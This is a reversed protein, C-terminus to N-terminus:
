NIKILHIHNKGYRVVYAGAPLDGINLIGNEVKRKLIMRGDISYIRCLGFFTPDIKLINANLFLHYDEQFIEKKVVEKIGSGSYVFKVVLGYGTTIYFISDLVAVDQTRGINCLTSRIYGGPSFTYIDLGATGRLAYVNRGKARIHTCGSIAVSDLHQPNQPTSIDYVKFYGVYLVYLLSDEPSVEVDYVRGSGVTDVFTNSNIDYVLLGHRLTGVYVYNGSIAGTMFFAGSSLITDQQFGAMYHILRFGSSREFVCAISDSIAVDVVYSLATDHYIELDGSFISFGDSYEGYIVFSDHQASSFVPRGLVTDEALVSDMDVMRNIGYTTGLYITDLLVNITRPEPLVSEFSVPEFQGDESEPYIVTVSKLTSESSIIEGSTNYTKVMFRVKEAGGFDFPMVVITDPVINKLVNWTIGNDTSYLLEARHVYSPDDFIMNLKFHLNNVISSQAKVLNINGSQAGAPVVNYLAIYTSDSTYLPWAWTGFDWTNHLIVFTDAGTVQYGIACTSHEIIRGYPDLYNGVAWHVPRRADIEEKLYMYATDYSCATDYVITDYIWESTFSYGNEINACDETGTAIPAWDTYGTMTDANMYIALERQVNPVNFVTDRLVVDYHNFYYDVLRGYGRKDWYGLIMASATPSCGYSWLYAPVSDIIAYEDLKLTNDLWKSWKISYDRLKINSNFLRVVYDKKAPRFFRTDYYTNGDYIFFTSFGTYIVRKNRYGGYKKRYMMFRYTGHGFEYVPRANKMNGTIVCFTDDRYTYVYLTAFERFDPTYLPIREEVTYKYSGGSMNVIKDAIVSGGTQVIFLVFVLMNM